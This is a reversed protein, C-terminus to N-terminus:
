TIKKANSTEIVSFGLNRLFIVVRKDLTKQFFISIDLKYKKIEKLFSISFHDSHEHSYWIFIKKQPETLLKKIIKKNSTSKDLLSWGNNFALSEYWPDILLFSYTTEILFSAHNLFTFKTM